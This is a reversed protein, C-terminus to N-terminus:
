IHLALPISPTDTLRAIDVAAIADTDVFSMLASGKKKEVKDYVQLFETFCSRIRKLGEDLAAQICYKKALRVL